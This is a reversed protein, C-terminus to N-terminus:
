ALEFLTRCGVLSRRLYKAILPICRIGYLLAILIEANPLDMVYPLLSAVPCASYKCALSCGTGHTNQSPLYDTEYLIAKSGDFLVDVVIDGDSPLSSPKGEKTLPIHGGKVLVFQPGLSYLSKAVDVIGDLTHTDPVVLGANELLLRAEPVNPTLVTTMPLLRLRLNLIAGNPLLQAGSTSVMVPDVVATPRGHKDLSNAVADVTDVSALMGIKVVDVGIDDLCADIQRTVFESPVQHIDLVGRTSQATLATTATM